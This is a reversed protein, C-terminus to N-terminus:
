DHRVLEEFSKKAKQLIINDTQNKWKLQILIQSKINLFIRDHYYYKTGELVHSYELNLVTDNKDIITVKTDSIADYGLLEYIKNKGGIYDKAFKIAGNKQCNEYAESDFPIFALQIDNSLKFQYNIPGVIEFDTNEVVWDKLDNGSITQGNATNIVPLLILVFIICKLM